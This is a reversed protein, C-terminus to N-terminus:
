WGNNYRFSSVVDHSHVSAERSHVRVERFKIKSSFTSVVDNIHARNLTVGERECV